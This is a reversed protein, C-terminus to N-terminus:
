TTVVGTNLDIRRIVQGRLYTGQAMYLNAGDSWLASILLNDDPLPIPTFEGTNLNVGGLQAKTTAAVFLRDSSGAIPGINFPAPSLFTQDGTTLDLKKGTGSYGTLFLSQGDSSASRPGPVFYGICGSGLFCEYPTGSGTDALKSTAGTASNVQ